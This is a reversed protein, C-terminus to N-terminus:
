QGIEIYDVLIWGWKAAITIVNTGANLQVGPITKVVWAGNVTADFVETRSNGNVLVYNEQNGSTSYRIRISYIGAAVNNFSVALQDGPESFYGVYGSGEYDPLANLISVGSGTRTGDEAQIRAPSTSTGVPVIEVYDVSMWGWLKAIEISNTGAILSVGSITKVAWAGEATAPFEQTTSNGNVIVYNQQTGPTTYRIRIDHTGAAVNAFSLSLRDGDDSFYNVYGTGEYGTLESRVAVGTGTLVGNEAQIKTPSGSGGGGSAPREYAGIDIGSGQPRSVGAFDTASSPSGIGADIAPSNAALHFNNNARDVFNPDAVVTGTSQLNENLPMEFWFTWHNPDARPFQLNNRITTSARTANDQAVTITAWANYAVANNAIVFNRAYHNGIEIGIERNGVITNNYIQVDQVPQVAAVEGTHYPVTIGTKTNYILNNFIRIHHILKGQESAVSVGYGQTGTLGHITNSHIDINFTEEDWADVYIGLKVSGTITNGAIRGNRSGAKADINEGGGQEGGGGNKNDHLFNNEVLFGDVGEMTIVENFGGNVANTIENARVTVNTNFQFVGVSDYRRIFGIGSTFCGNINNAEVTIHNVGQGFICSGRSNLVSLGRVQVHSVGYMDITGWWRRGPRVDGGPASSLELKALNEQEISSGDITVTGETQPRFVIPNGATGSNRVALRDNTYTGPHIYVTDGAVAAEGAKKLTRWPAAQTGPNADNGTLSVHRDAALASFSAYFAACVLLSKFKGLIM